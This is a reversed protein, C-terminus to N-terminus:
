QVAETVLNAARNASRQELWQRARAAKAFREHDGLAIAARMAAALSEADGAQHLFADEAGCDVAAAAGASAIVLAGSAMAELIAVGYPEFRAPHLFFHRGELFVPVAGPELWGEFTVSEAIGLEATLRALRDRDPGGGAIAYHFAGTRGEFVRALARLAIEYGKDAILRGSSVFRIPTAGAPPSFRYRSTDICYPFDVLKERPCGMRELERLAPTGTGMVRWAHRFAFRLFAARGREKWWPRVKYPNPTDNFTMYRQGRAACEIIALESTADEWSSTIFMKGPKRLERLLHWDIGFNREYVRSPYGQRLPTKWPYSEHAPYRYHVMLPFPLRRHLTAFLHDNYPSPSHTVWEIGTTKM